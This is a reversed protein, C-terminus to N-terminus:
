PKFTRLIGELEVLARRKKQQPAYMFAEIYYFNKGNEFAHSVFNGGRMRNKLVWMGRYETCFGVEKRNITRKEIPFYTNETQMYSEKLDPNNMYKEGIENRLKLIQLTDFQKPDIYPRKTIWISKDYPTEQSVPSRLWIFNTDKFAVKYGQPVKGALGIHKKVLKELEIQTLSGDDGIVKELLREREAKQFFDLINQQNKQLNELFVEKNPSTIFMVKQGQAFVDNRLTIFTNPNGRLKELSAGNFFTKIMQGETSDDSFDLAIVLNTHRQMIKKFESPVINLVRFNPEQESIGTFAQEFIDLLARGATDKKLKPSIVMALEGESGISKPKYSATKTQGNQKTGTADTGGCSTFTTNIFIAIFIISSLSFSIHKKFFFNPIHM